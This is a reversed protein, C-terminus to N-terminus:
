IVLLATMQAPFVGPKKVFFAFHSGAHKAHVFSRGDLTTNVWIKKM